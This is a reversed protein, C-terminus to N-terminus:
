KNMLKLEFQLDEKAKNFYTLLDPSNIRNRDALTEFRWDLGTVWEKGQNYKHQLILEVNKELNDTIKDGLGLNKMTDSISDKSLAEGGKVNKSFPVELTKNKLTNYEKLIDDVSNQKILSELFEKGTNQKIKSCLVGFPDDSLEKKELSVGYKDFLPKISETYFKETTNKLGDGVNSASETAKNGINFYGKKHGIIGFAITAALATTGIMYKAANSKHKDQVTEVNANSKEPSVQTNKFTVPKNCYLAQNQLLNAQNIVTM